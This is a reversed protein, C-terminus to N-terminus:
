DKVCRCGLGYSKNLRRGHWDVLVSSHIEMVRYFATNQDFSNATWFTSFRGKDASNQGWIWGNPEGNFNVINTAGVNQIIWLSSNSKLAGGANLPGGLIGELVNWESDSAVHWGNPCIGRADGVAFWNYLKGYLLNNSPDMQYYTYAPTALTEWTSGPIVYSILDGNKFRTTRLNVNMWETNGIITSTYVNGDIDTVGSGAALYLSDTKVTQQTSYFVGDPSLAYAKVYYLTKSSLGSVTGFIQTTAYNALDVAAGCGDISNVSLSKRSSSLDPNPTLSYVVGREFVKTEIPLSVSGLVSFSSFNGSTLGTLSVTPLTAPVGIEFRRVARVNAIATKPQSALCSWDYAHASIADIESSTWITQHMVLGGLGANYLNQKILIVEDWSPLYWDDYGNVILDSCLKAANNQASCSGLINATNQEGSWVGKSTNNLLVGSCGWSATGISQNSVVLGSNGDPSVYFVMGGGYNMGVTIGSSQSPLLNFSIQNSYVTGNSNTAFARVYYADSANTLGNQIYDFDLGQNGALIKLNSITPLPNNSVVFGRETIASVGINLISAFYRASQTTISVVSDLSVSLSGNQGSIPRQFTSINGFAVGSANRAFAKFYYTIGLTYNTWNEIMSGVLPLVSISDTVVSFNATQSIIFGSKTLYLGGDSVVNGTLQIAVGSVNANGTQVTPLGITTKFTSSVWYSGNYYQVEGTGACDTCYIMWGSRINLMNDRDIETLRPLGFGKTNSNLDFLPNVNISSDNIVNSVKSNWLTIDSSTIGSAPAASFIPDVEVAV